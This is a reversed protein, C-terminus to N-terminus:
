ESPSYILPVAVTGWWVMETSGRLLGKSIVSLFLPSPRNYIHKFPLVNM